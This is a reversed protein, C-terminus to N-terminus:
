RNTLQIAFGAIDLDLYVLRLNGNEDYKESGPVVHIGKEELNQLSLPLNDTHIGLHGHTGPGATRQVELQEGAFFAHGSDRISLGFLSQLIEAYKLAEAENETNIGIHSLRYNM